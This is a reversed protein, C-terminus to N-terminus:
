YTCSLSLSLPTSVICWCVNVLCVCLVCGHLVMNTEAEFGIAALNEIMKAWVWFNGFLYDASALGTAPRLKIGEPDLGTLPDLKMHKLWCRTNTVLKQFMANGGWMKQRFTNPSYCERAEWTELGTSVIGPILLVPYHSRLGLEFLAKGPGTSDETFHKTIKSVTDKMASPVEVSPPQVSVREWMSGEEALHDYSTSSFIVCGVCLFMALVVAWRCFKTRLFSGYANSDGPEEDYVVRKWCCFLWSRKYGKVSEIATAAQLDQKLQLVENVLLHKTKKM